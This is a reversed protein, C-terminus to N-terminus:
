DCITPRQKSRVWADRIAGSFKLLLTEDKVLSSRLAKTMELQIAHSFGAFTVSQQTQTCRDPQFIWAGAFKPVSKGKKGSVVIGVLPIAPEPMIWGSLAEEMNVKLDEAFAEVRLVLRDDGLDEAHARMAGFGITLHSGGERPAPTKCGHVDIHLMSSGSLQWADSLGLVLQHWPNGRLEATRLYNPDRNRPDLVQHRPVDCADALAVLSQVRKLEEPSWVLYTGSFAKALNKAIETTNNEPLHPEFGDRLLHVGHPATVLIPCRSIVSVELPGVRNEIETDALARHVEGLAEALEPASAARETSALAAVRQRWAQFSESVPLDALAELAEATASGIRPRRPEHQREPDELPGDAATAAHHLRKEGLRPYQEFDRPVVPYGDPCLCAALEVEAGGGGEDTSSSSRSGGQEALCAAAAAAAAAGGGGRRLGALFAGFSAAARLVQEGAADPDGASAEASGATATRPALAAQGRQRLLSRGPKGCAPYCRCAPDSQPLQLELCPVAMVEASAM